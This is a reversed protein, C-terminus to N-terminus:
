NQTFNGDEQKGIIHTIKQGMLGTAYGFVMEKKRKGDLIYDMDISCDGNITVWVLKSEGPSLEYIHEPECGIINIDTLTSKTPNTITIRMTDLLVICFWCYLVTVPVNLLMLGSVTILKKKNDKDYIAKFIITLILGLNFLGMFISFCYGTLLLIESSTLYYLGFIFTGLLFSILATQRGLKIHRETRM